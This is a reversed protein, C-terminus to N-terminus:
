NDELAKYNKFFSTGLYVKSIYKFGHTLIKRESFTQLNRSTFNYYLCKQLM